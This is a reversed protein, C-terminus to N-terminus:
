LLHHNVVQPIYHSLLLKDADPSTVMATLWMTSLRPCRIHPALAAQAAQQQWPTAQNNTYAQAVFLVSDESSVQLVNVSM